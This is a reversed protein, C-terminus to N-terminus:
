DLQEKCKRCIRVKKKEENWTYGIRVAQNCRSCFYAVNSIDLPAEKEMIGGKGRTDPRKHRKVFNLKEVVVRGEERLIKVIKGTKGKEKGAIVQVTDGKKLKIEDM